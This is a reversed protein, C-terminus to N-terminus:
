FEKKKRGKKPLPGSPSSTRYFVPPIQGDTRGDTRVDTRVDTRGDTGGDEPSQRRQPRNLGLNQLIAWIWAIHGLVLCFPGFELMVAWIWDFHGLDLWFVGIRAQPRDNQGRLGINQGVIGLNQGSKPWKAQIQGM